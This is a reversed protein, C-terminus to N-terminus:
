GFVWDQVMYRLDQLKALILVAAMPFGFPSVLFALLLLLLGYPVSYLILSALGALSLVTCIFGLIYASCYLASSCLWILLILLLIVPSVLIKLLIRM